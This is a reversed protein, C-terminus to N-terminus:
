DAEEDALYNRIQSYYGQPDRKSREIEDMIQDLIRNYIEDNYDLYEDIDSGLDQLLADIDYRDARLNRGLRKEAWKDILDNADLDEDVDDAFPQGKLVKSILSNPGPKFNEPEVPKPPETPKPSNRVIGLKNLYDDPGEESLLANVLRTAKSRTSM